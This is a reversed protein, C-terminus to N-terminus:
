GVCLRSRPLGIHHFVVLEEGKVHVNADRPAGKLEVPAWLGLGLRGDDVGVDGDGEGFHVSADNSLDDNCALAETADAVASARGAMFVGVGAIGATASAPM